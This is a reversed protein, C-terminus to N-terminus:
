SFAISVSEIETNSDGSAEQYDEDDMLTHLGDDGKENRKIELEFYSQKMMLLIVYRFLICICKHIFGSGHKGYCSPDYDFGFERCSFVLSDVLIFIIFIHIGLNKKWYQKM